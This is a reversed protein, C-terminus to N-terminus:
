FENDGGGQMLDDNKINTNDKISNFKLEGFTYKFSIGISRFLIDKRTYSYFNTGEIETIFPKYAKFPETFRLGISGKKNKFEKKFGLSFMSFGPSFGQSTQNPSRFFGFTEAKYGKGLDYNGGFNWNYLVRGLDSKTTQYTFLNFGGRLNLNGLTLSGYYNLGISNNDMLNEYRTEYRLSDLQVRFSEILDVSRKAFLYYSGKYKRDFSNYGVEVQHTIAPDLYPNGISVNYEDTNANNTNIYRMGPRSIRKSYSAKISKMMDIKKSLILNPLLTIYENKFPQKLNQKWVGDELSNWKGNIETKEVRLGAVLGIEKTLEWKSSSYVAAVDQQYDFQEKPISYYYANTSYENIMNRNVFKAGFELTHKDKIPHTYDIQFTYSFPSGDNNNIISDKVSSNSDYQYVKYDEDVLDNGLQFAFRLERDEHDKFQKIYDTTWEYGYRLNKTNTYRTTDYEFNANPDFFANQDLFDDSLIGAYVSDNAREENTQRNGRLNISSVISNYPNFDYYIESSGGFGIWQGITKANQFITSDSL